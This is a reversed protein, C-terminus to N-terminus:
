LTTATYISLVAPSFFSLPNFLVILGSMSLPLLNLSLSLCLIFSLLCYRCSLAPFSPHAPCLLLAFLSPLTLPLLPPSLLHLPSSSLRPFPLYPHFHSLRISFLPPPCIHVSSHPLHLIRGSSLLHPFSSLLCSLPLYLLFYSVPLSRLLFTYKFVTILFISPTLRLYYFILPLYYYDHSSLSLSPLLYHQSFLPSPCIHLCFHPLHLHSRLNISSLPFIIITKIFPLYLPFYYVNLICLLLICIFVLVLFIFPALTSYYFILPLCYNFYYHHYFPSSSPLLLHPSRFLFALFLRSVLVSLVLLIYSLSFIIIPMPSPSLSPLLNLSTCFLPPNVVQSRDSRNTHPFTTFSFPPFSFLYSYLSSFSTSPSSFFWFYLYHSYLYPNFM